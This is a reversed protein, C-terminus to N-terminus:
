EPTSADSLERKLWLRAFQWDRAVTSPSVGLALAAQESTLGAFFRLEVVKAKQADLAALRELAADLAVLDVGADGQSDEPLDALEDLTIRQAGGGRKLSGKTRAHDTLIRRIATAAAGFFHARNQWTTDGPGVLRLYAENVLATPQLTHGVRENSLFTSAIQRLEDYVLPFLENTAQRDGRQVRDLLHTVNAAPKPDSPKMPREMTVIMPPGGLQVVRREIHPLGIVGIGFEGTLPTSVTHFARNRM